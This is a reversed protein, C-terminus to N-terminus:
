HVFSLYSRAFTVGSGNSQRGSRVPRVHVPPSFCQSGLTLLPSFCSKTPSIAAPSKTSASTWTKLLRYLKSTSLHPSSLIGLEQCAQAVDHYDRYNLHDSLRFADYQTSTGIDDVWYKPSHRSAITDAKYLQFKIAWAGAETAVECMEIARAISNNHNVGAEAIVRCAGQVLPAAGDVAIAVDQSM